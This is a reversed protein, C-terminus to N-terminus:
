FIYRFNPNERDTLDGFATADLDRGELGGEQLKQVADRRENERVMLYWFVFISVAEILNSVIMSWIGLSYTPAQDTRYFFPGSINGAAYGLYLVANTIVKKTYGATNSIMLSLFMVASAVYSGTLLYCIYKGATNKDDVYRLGFTGAINPCVYLFVFLCRKNTFRDNLFVCTLISFIVFVGYPIQMLTTHLTSFGFGEIILTGFNSIGGNPVSSVFALLFFLYTKIDLFAEIVQYRKFHKNEVGTQDENKREVVMRREHISFVKATMPSDPLFITILIGWCCCIAGIILFEYKWSALDGHIHGIVYGLLGGLAIGFGNASYWLGVRLPQERRTYWMSTILMFAPDACSEVAGGLTRLVALSAFSSTTVQLMLLVGWIFVNIGLYKGIPYRQMLLTTPLTWALFGFYFLSSLWSYQDNKLNLDKRIGFIAAYSLTTKDVYFFTYCIFLFPLITFDIMRVLKKQEVPDTAGHSIHRTPFLELAGDAQKLTNSPVTDGLTSCPAEKRHKLRTDNGRLIPDAGQFAEPKEM